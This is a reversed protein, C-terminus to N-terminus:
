ETVAAPEATRRRRVVLVGVLALLGLGGVTLLTTGTGGTLPLTFGANKEVNVVSTLRSLDSDSSITGDASTVQKVTGDNLLVVPIPEALLEYGEPAKTEALWYVRYASQEVTEGNEWDSVRLNKLSVTGQDDSTATALANSNSGAQASAKNEYVGFEAGKIATSGDSDVKKFNLNAWKSDVENATLTTQKNNVTTTLTTETTGPKGNTISTPGSLNMGTKAQTTITVVVKAGATAAATKLKSLGDPNFTITVKQNDVAVSYDNTEGKTLAGVGTLNGGSKDTLNAVVIDATPPTLNSDLTDTIVFETPLAWNASTEPNEAMNVRPVDANITWVINNGTGTTYAASDNVTKTLTQQSNKPYVYVDYLWTNKNRPDTIPITVLFPASSIVGDPTKTEQVLYVGVPLSQFADSDDFKPTGNADTTGTSPSSSLTVDGSSSTVKGDEDVTLSEALQWGANTTLDINADEVKTVQTVTFTVDKIPKAGEPLSTNKEGTAKDASENQTSLKTIHLNGTAQTITPDTTTDAQAAAVGTLTLAATVVLTGLTTFFGRRQKQTKM